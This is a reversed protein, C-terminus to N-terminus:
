RILKGAMDLTLIHDLKRMINSNKKRLESLSKKDWIYYTLDNSVLVDASAPKGTIYSIEAIFQGRELTAIKKDNRIVEATGNLVLMLNEQNDGQSILTKNDVHMLEGKDWFHLFERSTKTHFINEYLDRIQEPIFLERRERFIIMIQVLNIIIFIITWGGKNIDDNMYANILHGCQSVTLVIRLWLIGRISLALLTLLYSCHLFIVDLTM